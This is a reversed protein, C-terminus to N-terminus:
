PGPKGGAKKADKADKAEIRAAFWREAARGKTPDPRSEALGCEALVNLARDIEDKTKHRHFIRENIETRTLGAADAERLSALIANADPDGLSEGFIYRASEECYRWAALAAELHERRISDACDLVAYVLSFRVAYSEARSTVAGFLGPKAASLDHYINCWLRRAEGDRQLEGCTQAHAVAQKLRAEIDSFDLLHANGGEPLEKSRRVCVWPIRNAFGNACDTETL